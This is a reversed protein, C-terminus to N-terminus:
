GRKPAFPNDGKRLKFRIPVGPLGFADRLSNTLYRLYAKPLADPALLLRRLDASALLAADHLPDQGPPGQLGAACAAGAGRRALPQPAADARPPELMEYSRLVAQM